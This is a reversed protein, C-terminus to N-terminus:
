TSILVNGGFAFIVASTHLPRLRGFNFWATDFNLVPFALQWAITDGVLFGVVGWFASAIVGAKVIDNNYFVGSPSAQPKNESLNLGLNITAIIGAIFAVIVVLAHFQMAGTTTKAAVLIAIIIGLVLTSTIFWQAFRSIIPPALQPVM